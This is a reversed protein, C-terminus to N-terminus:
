GAVGARNERRAASQGIIPKTLALADAAAAITASAADQSRPGRDVATPGHEQQSM